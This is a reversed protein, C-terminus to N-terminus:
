IISNCNNQGINQNLICHKNKFNRINHIYTNHRVLVFNSANLMDVAREKLGPRFSHTSIFQHM